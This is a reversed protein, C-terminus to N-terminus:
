PIRTVSAINRVFTSGASIVTGDAAVNVNIIANWVDIGRHRQQLYVHTVGTHTSVVTNSVAIERVDSGTVRLEKKHSQVYSLAAGTADPAAPPAGMAVGLWGLALVLVSMVRTGAFM